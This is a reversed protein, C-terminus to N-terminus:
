SKYSVIDPDLHHNPQNLIWPNCPPEQGKAFYAARWLECLFRKIMVRKADLYGHKPNMNKCTAKTGDPNLHWWEPRTKKTKEARQDYVVRYQGNQKIFNPGIVGLLLSKMKPNSSLRQGATKKEAFGNEEVQLGCYHWLSSPTPFRTIDKLVALLKASTKPGLGKVQSMYNTYIPLENLYEELKKVVVEEAIQFAEGEYSTDFNLQAQETVYEEVKDEDTKLTEFLAQKILAAIEKKRKTVEAETGKNENRRLQQIQAFLSHKSIVSNVLAGRGQNFLAVQMKDLYWLQNAHLYFYDIPSMQLQPIVNTVKIEIRNRIEKRIQKKKQNLPNM